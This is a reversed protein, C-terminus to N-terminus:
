EQSAIFTIDVTQTFQTENMSIDPLTPKATESSKVAMMDARNLSSSYNQYINNYTINKIGVVKLNASQSNIDAKKKADKIATDILEERIKEVLKDSFQTNYNFTIKSNPEDAFSMFLTSLKEINVNFELKIGQTAVFGNKNYSGDCYRLDETVSYSTNKIEEKI